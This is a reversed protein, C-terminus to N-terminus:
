SVTRRLFSPARTFTDSEIEGICSASPPTTAADTIARSTPARRAMSSARWSLSRRRRSIRALMTRASSTSRLRIAVSSWSSVTCTIVADSKARSRTASTARRASFWWISDATM